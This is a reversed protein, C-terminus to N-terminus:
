GDNIEEIEKIAEEIELSQNQSIFLIDGYPADIKRGVRGAIQILTAKNFIEHDSKYVIVQLNKITIGRELISTTILYRYKGDKFDQIIKEREKTRSSVFKGEKFVMNVAKFLQKGENITPVYVLIPFKDHYYKRFHFMFFILPDVITIIAKPIPLPHNHYRSLLKLYVGKRENLLKTMNENPTASLMIYTGKLANLFMTNLVENGDFPFADTEDIILLDFCKNYRYLQHTTLIIIDADLEKTHGGFVAVVKNNIFVQKFREFLDIVVDKRPIAFAVKLKNKLAFSITEFVLETKGAGCVAHILVDKKRKFSLLVKKSIILQEKSLKYTLDYEYQSPECLFGELEEGQFSVCKRCYLGDSRIGFFRIDNNGCRYCKVM